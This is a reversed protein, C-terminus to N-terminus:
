DRKLISGHLREKNSYTLRPQQSLKLGLCGNLIKLSTRFRLECEVIIRECSAKCDCSNQLKTNHPPITKKIKKKLMKKYNKKSSM